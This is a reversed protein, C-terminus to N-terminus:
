FRPRPPGPLVTPGPAPFGPVPPPPAYPVGCPGRSAPLRIEYAGDGSVGALLRDADLPDFALARVDFDSRPAGVAQWTLGYDPSAFVGDATGAYLGCPRKPDLAVAFTLLQSPITGFRRWTAAADGSRFVEGYFGFAYLAGDPSVFYRSVQQGDIGRSADFFTAGSDTSKSFRSNWRYLTGARLPDPAAGVIVSFPGAPSVLSWRAGADTSRFLASSTSAWVVGHEWPDAALSGPSSSGSLGSSSLAWNAGGDTSRFLRAKSSRSFALVVDPVGPLATMAIVNEEELGAARSWTRGGDTTTHAGCNSGAVFRGPAGDPVAFVNVALARLGSSAPRFTVGADDSRFVGAGRAAAYLVGRDESHVDLATVNRNPLGEGLLDFSDDDSTVRYLGRETAAFLRRGPLPAFRIRHVPGTALDLRSFTAAGDTSRFIGANTAALVRRPDAPDVAITPFVYAGLSTFPETALRSTGGVQLTAVGCAAGGRAGLICFGVYLRHLADPDVAVSLARYATYLGGSTPWPLRSWSVGQNTSREIWDDAVAYITGAGRPDLAIATTRSTSLRRFSRGGDRSRFLGRYTGAYATAPDEADFVVTYAEDDPPFGSPRTWRAGGGEALWIGGPGAAVLARSADAPDVAIEEVVAGELGLPTWESSAALSSTSESPRGPAALAAFAALLGAGM